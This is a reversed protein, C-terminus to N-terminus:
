SRWNTQSDIDMPGQAGGVWTAFHRMGVPLGADVKHYPRLLILGLM